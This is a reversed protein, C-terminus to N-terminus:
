GDSINEWSNGGDTTRWVGGGTSGMYYLNPKGPVGAVAASRGGRFPGINRWQLGEYKAPSITHAPTPNSKTKQAHISSALMLACVSLLLFTFKKM